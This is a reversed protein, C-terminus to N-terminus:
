LWARARGARARDLHVLGSAGRIRRSRASGAADVHARARIRARRRSRLSHCKRPRDHEAVAHADAGLMRRSTVHPPVSPLRERKEFFGRPRWRVCRAREACVAGGISSSTLRVTSPLGASPRPLLALWRQIRRSWRRFSTLMPAPVMVHLEVARFFCRVDDLVLACRDSTCSLAVTLTPRPPGDRRARRDRSTGGAPEREVLFPLNRFPHAVACFLVPRPFRHLPRPASFM